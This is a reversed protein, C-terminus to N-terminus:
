ENVKEGEKWAKRPDLGVRRIAANIKDVTDPDLELEVVERDAICAHLVYGVIFGILLGILLM